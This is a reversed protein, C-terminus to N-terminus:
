LVRGISRTESSIMFAAWGPRTSSVFRPFPNHMRVEKFVRVSVLLGSVSTIEYLHPSATQGVAGGKSPPRNLIDLDFHDIDNGLLVNAIYKLLSSKGVGTGGM